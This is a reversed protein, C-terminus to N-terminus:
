PATRLSVEGAHFRQVGNGTEALLAGDEAVGLYRGETVSHGATVVVRQDVCADFRRWRPLFPKLGFRQFQACAPILASILQAALRNRDVADLGLRSLDIWPQDIAEATAQDLGINLGIGVIALVPGDSEGSAEVLIGALKKGQVLVDNPWKLRHSDVGNAALVEALVVGSVLGLSALGSLALDFRYALSLYLSQGFPSV